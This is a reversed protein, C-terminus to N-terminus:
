GGVWPAWRLPHPAGAFAGRSPVSVPNIESLYRFEIELGESPASLLTLHTHAGWILTTYGHIEDKTRVIKAVRARNEEFAEPGGADNEPGPTPALKGYKRLASGAAEVIEAEHTPLDDLLPALAGRMAEILGVESIGALRAALSAGVAIIAEHHRGHPLKGDAGLEVIPTEVRSPRAEPETPPPLDSIALPRGHGSYKFANGNPKVAPLYYIRALDKTTPDTHGDTLLASLRPFVAPWESAPVAGGLPVIVRFKPLEPTSSHTSHIVHEFGLGGLHRHVSAPDTGDDVDMVAATVCEVGSNGRTAGDTYRVPSWAPGSKAERPDFRILRAELEGWTFERASPRISHEDVFFSVMLRLADTPCREPDTM